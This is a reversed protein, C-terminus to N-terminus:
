QFHSMCVYECECMCVGYVSVRLYVAACKGGLDFMLVKIRQTRMGWLRIEMAMGMEMEMVMGLGMGIGMEMEMEMGMGMGM